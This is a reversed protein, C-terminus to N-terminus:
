QGGIRHRTFVEYQPLILERGDYTIGCGRGPRLLGPHLGGQYVGRCVGHEGFGQMMRGGASSGSHAPLWVPASYAGPFGGPLPGIMVEYVNSTMEIERSGWAINCGSFGRGTKGVIRESWQQGPVLFSVRCFALQRTAGNISESGVYHADPPLQGPATTRWRVGDSPDACGAPARCVESDVFRPSSSVAPPPPPPPPPPPAAHAPQAGASNPSSAFTWQASWWGMDIPGAELAGRETHLYTEPRWRNRLRVYPQASRDITWQASHWNPDGLPGSTVPGREIHIFHDPRFRNRLRVYHQEGPVPEIFWDASWWGAEIRGAQAAGQETHLFQDARFRNQIRFSQQASLSEASVALVLAALAARPVVAIVSV